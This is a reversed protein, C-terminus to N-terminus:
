IIIYKYICINNVKRFMKLCRPFLYCAWANLDLFLCTVYFNNSSSSKFSRKIRLIEVSKGKIPSQLLKFIQGGHGAISFNVFFWSRLRPAPAGYRVGAVM